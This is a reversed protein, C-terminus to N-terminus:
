ETTQLNNKNQNNLFNLPNIEFNDINFISFEFLKALASELEKRDSETISNYFDFADQMSQANFMGSDSRGNIIGPQQYKEYINRKAEEKQNAFMQDVNPQTTNEWMSAPITTTPAFPVGMIRGANIPGKANKLKNGFEDKKSVSDINTYYKLIGSLSFGNQVNSLSYLKADSEFQADDQVSDYTALGYIDKSRHWYFIQGPYNEFGVENIQKIAEEPNFVFFNEITGTQWMNYREWNESVQYMQWKEGNEKIKKRVFEFNIPTFETIEGFRNFSCHVAFGIQSKEEALMTLFEPGKLGENNVILDQFSEIGQGITFRTLTGLATQLSNSRSAIAKSKQPYLNDSGYLYIGKAISQNIPLRKVYATFDQSNFPIYLQRADTTRKTDLTDVNNKM